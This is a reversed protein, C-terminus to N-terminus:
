KRQIPSNEPTLHTYSALLYKFFMSNNGELEHDLTSLHGGELGVGLLGLRGRWTALLHWVEHSYKTVICSIEFLSPFPYVQNGGHSM